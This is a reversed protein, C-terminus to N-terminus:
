SRRPQTSDNFLADAHHPPPENEDPSKPYAENNELSPGSDNPEYAENSTVFYALSPPPQAENRRTWQPSDM